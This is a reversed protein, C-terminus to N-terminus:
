KVGTRIELLNRFRSCEFRTEKVLESFHGVCGPRLTDAVFELEAHHGYWDGGALYLAVVALESKDTITNHLWEEVDFTDKQRACFQLVREETDRDLM